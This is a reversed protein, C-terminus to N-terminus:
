LSRSPTPTPLPRVRCTSPPVQVLTSNGLDDSDSTTRRQLRTPTSMLLPTVKTVRLLDLRLALDDLEFTKETVAATINRVARNVADLPPTKFSSRGIKDEIVKDKLTRMHEELQEIKSRTAEVAVRIKKQNEVQEPGLQRVRVMKAFVPDCRARIFRAAEERKTEAKLMLSQLEAAERKQGLAVEVLAGVDPAVENTLDRLKPLDGMSWARDDYTLPDDTQQYPTGISTLFTKCVATNKKLLAFENQLVLYAKLFEGSM